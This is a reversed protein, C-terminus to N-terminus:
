LAKRDSLVSLFENELNMMKSKELDSFRSIENNWRPIQDDDLCYYEPRLHEFIEQNVIDFAELIKKRTGEMADEESEFPGIVTHRNWTGIQYSGLEVSVAPKKYFERDWLNDNSFEVKLIGDSSKGSPEPVNSVVYQFAITLDSWNM